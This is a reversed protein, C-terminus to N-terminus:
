AEDGKAEAEPEEQSRAEEYFRRVRAAARARAADDAEAGERIWRMAETEEPQRPVRGAGGCRVCKRGYFTQCLPNWASSITSGHCWPCEETEEAPKPEPEPEPAAEPEPAREKEARGTSICSWCEVVIDGDLDGGFVLRGVGQCWRCAKEDAEPASAVALLALYGVLDRLTDETACGDGRAMRSLKDDIRVRLQEVRDARSFVRLPDLASNGYAANKAALLDAIEALWARAAAMPDYTM